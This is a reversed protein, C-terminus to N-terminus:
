PKPPVVVSKVGLTRALSDSAQRAEAAGLLGRVRVVYLTSAGRQQTTVTTMYGLASAQKQLKTANADSGFAGIQVAYKGDAPAAPARGTTDPKLVPPAVNRLRTTGPPTARPSDVSADPTVAAKPVAVTEPTVTAPAEVAPAATPAEVVPAPSPAPASTTDPRLVGALDSVKTHGINLLMRAVFALIVLGAGAVILWRNASGGSSRHSSEFM